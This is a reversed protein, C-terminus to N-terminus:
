EDLQQRLEIQGRVPSQENVADITITEGSKMQLVPKAHVNPVYGWLVQDPTSQLYHNGGITGEGPQLVRVAGLTSAASGTNTCGAAVGAVGVGAGIAAVARVFDRRGVGDVITDRVCRMFSQDM